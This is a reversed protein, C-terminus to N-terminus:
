ELITASCWALFRQVVSRYPTRIKIAINIAEETLVSIITPIHHEQLINSTILQDLIPQIKAMLSEEDDESPRENTPFLNSFM